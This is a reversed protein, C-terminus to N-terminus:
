GAGVDARDKEGVRSRETRRQGLNGQHKGSIAPQRLAQEGFQMPHADAQAAIEDGFVLGRGLRADKKM